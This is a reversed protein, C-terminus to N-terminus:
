DTRKGLTIVEYRLLSDVKEGRESTKADAECTKENESHGGGGGGGVTCECEENKEKVM